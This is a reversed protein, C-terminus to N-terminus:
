VEKSEIQKKLRPGLIPRLIYRKVTSLIWGWNLALHLGLIYLLIDATISHLQRWVFSSSLRLGFSPLVVESIMIGTLMVLVMDIFLLWNLVYNIRSKVAMKRFFGRTLGAVWNWSLLLHLIIVAISAITLWEHIAIGTTGPDLALLFGVFLFLDVVFKTIDQKFGALQNM